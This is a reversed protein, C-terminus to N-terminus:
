TIFESYLVLTTSTGSCRQGTMERPSSSRPSYIFPPGLATVASYPRIDSTSYVVARAVLYPLYWSGGGGWRAKSLGLKGCPERM